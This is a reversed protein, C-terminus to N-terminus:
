GRSDDFVIQIVYKKNEEYIEFIINIQKNSAPTKDSVNIIYELQVATTVTIYIKHVFTRRPM